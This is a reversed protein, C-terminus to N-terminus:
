PRKRYAGLWDQFDTESALGLYSLSDHLASTPYLTNLCIGILQASDPYFRLANKFKLEKDNGILNAGSIFIPKQVAMALAGLKQNWQRAYPKFRGDPVHTYQVAMFDLHPWFGIAHVRQLGAAYGVRIHHRARLADALTRWQNANRELPYFDTGAIVFQISTAGRMALLTDGITRLGAFWAATDAVPQSFLSDPHEALLQIGVQWTTDHLAALLQRYNAVTAARLQPNGRAGSVVPVHILVRAFGEQRLLELDHQQAAAPVAEAVSLGVWVPVQQRELKPTCGTLLLNALACCAVVLRIM